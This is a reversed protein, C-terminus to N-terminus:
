RRGGLFRAWGCCATEPTGAASGSDPSRPPPSRPRSETQQFRPSLEITRLAGYVNADGLVGSVDIEIEGVLV